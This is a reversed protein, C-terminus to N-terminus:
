NKVYTVILGTNPDLLNTELTTQLTKIAARTTAVLQRQSSNVIADEFYTSGLLDFSNIATTFQTKITNDLSVNYRRVLASLGVGGNTGLYVNQAGTINNKFDIWSNGSYPSEVINPDGTNNNGVYPADIKGDGDASVENCIDNMGTAIAMLASQVTPYVTNGSNGANIMYDGYKDGAIWSNYLLHVNNDYMDAGLGVMYALQGATLDAAKRDGHHGFIIYEIPHYGRLAQDLGKVEDETLLADPTSHMSLLSDMQNYDTPWTDTNPDYDDDEVPGVLFGESQEWIQRLAKWKTKAAELNADTTASNLTNLATKLDLAAADLATYTPIVAKNVFDSIITANDATADNSDNNDSKSCGTMALLAICISSLFINKKM